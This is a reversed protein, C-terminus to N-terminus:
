KDSYQIANGVKEVTRAPVEGVVTVFHGNSITGYANAARMTSGGRLHGHQSQMKEIFISISSLGDSYVSHEVSAGNKAKFRNKQMVLVFGEPLWKVQWESNDNKVVALTNLNRKHRKWTMKNGPTQTQLSQEPIDQGMEVSSFAFTELINGEEDVLDSQILLDSDKDVWLRYGYRYNDQPKVVLEQTHHGAIREEQGMTLQYYPLAIALRNLFDSPFGGGLPRHHPQVSKGEPYICTMFDNNRIVERAAGNLSILREVEGEESGRHIIRISQLSKGAPYSFVGEYNLKEAAKEMRELLQGAENTDAHTTISTLLIFLALFLHILSRM